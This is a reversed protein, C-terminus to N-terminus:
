QRKLWYLNQRMLPNEKFDVSKNMLFFAGDIYDQQTATRYGGELFTRVYDLGNRIIDYYRHGEMLLEKERERFVTMQLDGNDEIVQYLGANARRRIVNLDNVAGELKDGGLHVRCEARLLYIDALRWWVRNANFSAFKKKSGTVTVNVSREKYPYAFGGTIGKDLTDMGDLDYFWAYKRTDAGPFMKRVSATFIRFTFDQVIGPTYEPRVPYGVYNTGLSFVRKGVENYYDKMVTEYVGEKSNGVLVSACVEEPTSVLGYLPSDIVKTYAQEAKEWLKKEDYNRDAAAAFYKGGAKWACLHALLAYAAGQCPTSKSFIANGNCDTLKDHPPLLGAAQEAMEIAFDCVLPWPTKAVPEWSIGGKQLICDGWRRVLDFYALAKFFYAQGKYFDRREGSMDVVDVYDLVNQAGMIVQYWPEWLDATGAELELMRAGRRSEDVEDAYAGKEVQLLANWCVMERVGAGVGYTLAEIDKEETINGFTLSNEPEVRLLDTCGFCFLLMLLIIGSKM